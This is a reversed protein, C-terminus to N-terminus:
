LKTYGRAAKEVVHFNSAIVKEKVFFGSGLSVPQGREDEMVLLVVSPFTASAIQWANEAGKVVLAFGLAAVVFQYSM